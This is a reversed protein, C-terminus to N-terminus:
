PYKRKAGQSCYGRDLIPAYGELASRVHRTDRANAEDRIRPVLAAANGTIRARWFAYRLSEPAATLRLARDFMQLDCGQMALEALAHGFDAQEFAGGFGEERLAPPGALAFMADIIRQRTAADPALRVGAAMVEPRGINFPPAGEQASRIFMDWGGGALAAEARQRAYPVPERVPRDPRGLEATWESLLVPDGALAVTLLFVGKLRSQKDSPLDSAALWIADLVCRPEERGDCASAQAPQAAAVLVLTWVALGTLCARM